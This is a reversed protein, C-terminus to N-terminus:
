KVNQLKVDQVVASIARDCVKGKTEKITQRELGWPSILVNNM